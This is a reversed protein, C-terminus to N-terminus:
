DRQVLRYGRGEVTEISWGLERMIKRALSVHVRISGAMQEPEFNGWIAYALDVFSVTRPWAQALAFVLVAVQPPRIEVERGRYGALNTNLDVLLREGDVAQGCCPCHGATV